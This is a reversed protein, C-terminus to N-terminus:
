EKVFKAVSSEGNVVLNLFYIGKRLDSLNFSYNNHGFNSILYQEFVTEGLVNYIKFQLNTQKNLYISLQLKDTTPNPFLNFSYLDSQSDSIGSGISNVKVLFYDKKNIINNYYNAALSYNGFTHIGALWLPGSVYINGSFDSGIDNGRDGSIGTAVIAWKCFGTSDYQAVFMKEGNPILTFNGFHTTDLISGTITCNSNMDSTIAFSYQNGGGGGSQRVWICNGSTDYCSIFIDSSGTSTYTACGFPVTLKYFGTLFVHGFNDASVGCGQDIDSSGANLAWEWSGNANCKALYIDQSGNSNLVTSGFMVSNLFAGTIYTNDNGDMSIDLLYGHLIFTTVWQCVGATDFCAIFKLDPATTIISACGFDAASYINGGIVLKGSSSIAINGISIGHLPDIRYVWVLTGSSSYKAIFTGFGILIIGGFDVPGYYEGTIYVNGASDSCIDTTFDGLVSGVQVAWKLLGVSDYKCLYFDSDGASIFSDVGLYTTDLFNCSVYTNGNADVAIKPDHLVGGGKNAWEVSQAQINGPLTNFIFITLCLYFTKM